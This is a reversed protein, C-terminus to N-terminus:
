WHQLYACHTALTKHKPRAVGCVYWSGNLKFRTSTASKKGSYEKELLSKFSFQTQKQETLCKFVSEKQTWNRYFYDEQKAKPQKQLSTLESDTMFEQALELMNSRTRTQEIDIGIPSKSLAVAIAKQSHSISVYCLHQQHIKIQFPSTQTIEWHNLDLKPFRKKLMLHLTYRSSLFEAKRKISICQMYQTQISIPLQKLLVEANSRMVNVQSAIWIFSEQSFAITM